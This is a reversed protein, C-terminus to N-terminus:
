VTKRDNDARRNWENATKMIAHDKTLRVQKGNTYMLHDIPVKPMAVNCQTCHAQVSKIAYLHGDKIEAKGGCFPCPKLETAKM